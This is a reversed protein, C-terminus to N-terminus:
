KETQSITVLIANDAPLVKLNPKSSEEEPASDNDEIDLDPEEKSLGSSIINNTYKITGENGALNEETKRVVEKVIKMNIISDSDQNSTDIKVENGKKDGSDDDNGLVNDSNNGTGTDSDSDSDSESESESESESDSDSDSDSDSESDSDSDSNNSDSHSSNEPGISIKEKSVVITPFEIVTIGTLNEALSLSADLQVKRPKLDVEHSIAYFFISPEISANITDKRPMAEVNVNSFAKSATGPFGLTTNNSTAKLTAESTPEATVKSIIESVTGTTLDTKNDDKLASPESSSKIKVIKEYVNQLTDTSRARDSALIRKSDIIWEVTWLYIRQEQIKPNETIEKMAELKMENEEPAKPSDTITDASMPAIASRPTRERKPKAWGSKNERYRSMGFPVNRVKVGQIISISPTSPNGTKQRKFNRSNKVLKDVGSDTADRKALEMSRGISQLFNYDRNITNPTAAENRPLYKTIDVMGTCNRQTKHLKSCTLSCTRILCAPCTYIPQASHCMSCLVSLPVDM